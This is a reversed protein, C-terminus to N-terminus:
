SSPGIFTVYPLIYIKITVGVYSICFYFFMEGGGLNVFLHKKVKNRETNQFEPVGYLAIYWSSMTVTTDFVYTYETM